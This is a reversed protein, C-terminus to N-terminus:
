MSCNQVNGGKIRKRKYSSIVSLSDYPVVRVEVKVIGNNEVQVGEKQELIVGRWGPVVLHRTGRRQHHRGELEHPGDPLLLQGCVCDFARRQAHVLVRAQKAGGAHRGVRSALNLLVGLGLVDNDHAVALEVPEVDQVVVRVQDHRLAIDGDVQLGDDVIGGLGRDM